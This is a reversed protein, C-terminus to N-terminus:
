THKTVILCTMANVMFVKPMYYYIYKTINLTNNVIHNLGFILGMVEKGFCIHAITWFLLKRSFHVNLLTCITSIM